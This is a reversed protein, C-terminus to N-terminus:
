RFFKGSQPDRMANGFTASIKRRGISKGMINQEVLIAADAELLATIDTLFHHRAHLM